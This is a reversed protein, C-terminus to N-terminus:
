KSLADVVDIVSSTTSTIHRIKLSSKPLGDEICQCPRFVLDSISCALFVTALVILAEKDSTNKVDQAVSALLITSFFATSYRWILLIMVDGVSCWQTRCVTWYKAFDLCM